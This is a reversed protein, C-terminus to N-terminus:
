LGMSTSEPDLPTTVPASSEINRNRRLSEMAIGAALGGGYGVAGGLLGRKMTRRRVANKQHQPMGYTNAERGSRLGAATGASAAVFPLLATTAPLSKGLFNLEPGHIGDMTGKLIGAPLVFDGDSLDLDTDKDWKYAKYANYEAKSVDPRVKRFEEYPLLNGTRGLFYKTAVEALVNDTKSPDSESPVAAAYGGAGGLPTMLGLGQNIALGPLIGLAMAHGPMFKRKVYMGDKIGVGARREGAPNILGMNLAAQYNEDKNIRGTTPNYTVRRIPKRRYKVQEAEYLEPAAKAVVMENLINATAQPANLLWWLSRLSDQTLDAGVAGLLKGAMEAKSAPGKGRVASRLDIGMEKRAEVQNKDAIGLLERTTTFLPITGLTTSLRVANPDKNALERGRYYALNRDERGVGYMHEFGRKLDELARAMGETAM